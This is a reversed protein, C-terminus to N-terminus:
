MVISLPQLDLPSFKKLMYVICYITKKETSLSLTTINIIQIILLVKYTLINKYIKKRDVTM